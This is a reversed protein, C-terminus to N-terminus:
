LGPALRASAAARFRSQASLPGGSRARGAGDGSRPTGRLVNCALLESAVPEGYPIVV